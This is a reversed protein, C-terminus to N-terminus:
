AALGSVRVAREATSDLVDVYADPVAVQLRLGDDDTVTFTFFSCCEVERRCLDRLSEARGNAPEFTLMLSTPGLRDVARLATAFFEDFEAVRSPQAATPLSCASPGWADVREDDRMDDVM